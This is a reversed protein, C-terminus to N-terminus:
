GCDKGDTSTQDSTVLTSVRVPRDFGKLERRGAPEFEHRTALGAVAPTVLVEGPVAQAGVRSALNVIPGYFDNGRPLVEGFALGGRPTLASDGEFESCLAVAIDCLLNADTASFMVEDGILKVLRGGHRSIVAHTAAEFRTIVTLLEQPSMRLSSTTFGVLDVFGIGMPVLASARGASIEAAHRSEYRGLTVNSHRRFLTGLLPEIYQAAMDAQTQIEVREADSAGQNVLAMLVDQAFLNHAAESVGSISLSVTRLFHLFEEWSFVELATRAGVMSAVEDDSFIPEDVSDFTFGMAEWLAVIQDRNLGTRASAEDISCRFPEAHDVNIESNM